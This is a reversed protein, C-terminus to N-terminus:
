LGEIWNALDQEDVISWAHPHRQGHQVGRGQTTIYATRTNGLSRLQQDLRSLRNANLEEPRVGRNIRWWTTDPEAYLRVPLDKLPELKSNTYSIPSLRQYNAASDVPNGLCSDLLDVIFHAENLAPEGLGPRKIQEGAVQRLQRLDLPSDVVFLGKLPIRADPQRGLAEAVLVAMNGGASFGGLVVKDVQLGPTYAAAAIASILSDCEAPQLWLRSNVTMLATAMGHGNAAPVIRSETRTATTDDGFGPFLVLLTHAGAPALLEYDATNRIIAKGQPSSPSQCALLGCFPLLRLPAFFRM